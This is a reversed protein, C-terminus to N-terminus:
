DIELLEWLRCMETFIVICLRADHYPMLRRWNRKALQALLTLNAEMEAVEQGEKSKAITLALMLRAQSLLHRRGGLARLHEWADANSMEGWAASGALYCLADQFPRDLKDALDAHHFAVFPLIGIAPVIIAAALELQVHNLM